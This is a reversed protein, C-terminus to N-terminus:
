SASWARCSCRTVTRRPTGRSAGSRTRRTRRSTRRGSCASSPAVAALGDSCASPAPRDTSPPAVARAGLSAAHARTRRRARGRRHACRGAGIVCGSLGGRRRRAAPCCGSGRRPHPAGSAVGGHAGRGLAGTTHHIGRTDCTTHSTHMTHQLATRTARARRVEAASLAPPPAAIHFLQRIPQGTLWSWPWSNRGRAAEPQEIAELIVAQGAATLLRRVPKAAGGPSSSFLRVHPPLEFTVAVGACLRLPRTNLEAEGELRWGLSSSAYAITVTAMTRACEAAASEALTEFPGLVIRLECLKAAPGHLFHATRWVEVTCLQAEPLALLPRSLALETRNVFARLELKPALALSSWVSWAEAVDTAVVVSGNSIIPAIGWFTRQFKLGPQWGCESGSANVRLEALGDGHLNADGATEHLMTEYAMVGAPTGVCPTAGAGDLIAPVLLLALVACSAPGTPGM